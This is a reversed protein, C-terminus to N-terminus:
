DRDLTSFYKYYPVLFSFGEVLRDKLDPSFVADGIGEEHILAFTKKNYWDNLLEGADGKPRAYSEGELIFEKQSNLARMLKALPKPDKNIRARHKEMTSAKARYYGLGYSWEKPALEFWFVPSEMPEEGHSMTFWLHDKYPGNGHLRRADRYIRSVRPTLDLESFKDNFAEFVDSALASMPQALDRKYEDKHAEFWSKENNFRIGWMFDMTKESFGQFM